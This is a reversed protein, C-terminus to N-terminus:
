ITILYCCFCCLIYVWTIVNYYVASTTPMNGSTGIAVNSYAVNDKMELSSVGSTSIPTGNLVPPATASPSYSGKSKICCYYSIIISVIATIVATIVSVALAIGSVAPNSLGINYLVHLWLIVIHIFYVYIGAHEYDNACPTSAIATM